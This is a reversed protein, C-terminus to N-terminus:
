EAAIVPIPSSLKAKVGFRISPAGTKECLALKKAPVYKRLADTDYTVRGPVESITVRAYQGEVVSLGLQLLAQKMAAEQEALEAMRAKLELYADALRLEPKFRIITM